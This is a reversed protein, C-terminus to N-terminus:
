SFEWRRRAHRVAGQRSAEALERGGPMIPTAHHSTVRGCRSRTQHAEGTPSSRGSGARDPDAFVQHPDGEAIWVASGARLLYSQEKIVIRGCGDLVFFFHETGGHYHLPSAGGPVISVGDVLLDAATSATNFLVKKRRGDHVSVLEPVEDLHFVKSGAGARATAVPSEFLKHHPIVQNLRASEDTKVQVVEEERAVM